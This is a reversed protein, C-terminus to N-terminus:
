TLFTAYLFEQTQRDYVMSVSFHGEYEPYLKLLTESKGAIYNKVVKNDGVFEGVDYFENVDYADSPLYDNMNDSQFRNKPEPQFTMSIVRAKMSKSPIESADGFDVTFQDNEYGIRYGDLYIANQKHFTEFEARTTGISPLKSIKSPINPDFEKFNEQQESISTTKQAPPPTANESGCGTFLIGAALAAAIFKKM